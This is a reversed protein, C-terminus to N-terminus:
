CPWSPPAAGSGTLAPITRLIQQVTQASTSEIEDRGVAIVNSGVPAAGRISTGTVVIEEGDGTSASDASEQSATDSAASSPPNASTQQALAPTAWFGVALALALPSAGCSMVDRLNRM